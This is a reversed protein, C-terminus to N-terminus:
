IIDIPAIDAHRQEEAAGTHSVNVAQRFSSLAATGFDITNRPLPLCRLILDVPYSVPPNIIRMDKIRLRTNPSNIPNRSLL